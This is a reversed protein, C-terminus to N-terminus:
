WIIKSPDTLDQNDFQTAQVVLNGEYNANQYANGTELPMELTIEYLASYGKKLPWAPNEQAASINNLAGATSSFSRLTMAHAEDLIVNDPTGYATYDDTMICPTNVTPNLVVKSIKLQDLYSYGPTVSVTEAYARFILDMPGNNLVELCGVTTDGPKLNSIEFLPKSTSTNARVQVSLTSTGLVNGTNRQTNTFVAYAAGAVAFLGVLVFLPTLKKIM